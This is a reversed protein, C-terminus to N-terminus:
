ASMEGPDTCSWEGLESPFDDFTHRDPIVPDSAFHHYTYYNLGLFALAIILKTM